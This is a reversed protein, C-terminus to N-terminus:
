IKHKSLTTPKPHLKMNIKTTKIIKIIKIIIIIIIMIEVPIKNGLKTPHNLQLIISKHLTVIIM